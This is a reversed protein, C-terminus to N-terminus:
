GGNEVLGNVLRLRFAMRTRWTLYLLLIVLRKVLVRSHLPLNARLYHALRSVSLSVLLLRPFILLTEQSRSWVCPVLGIIKWSCARCVWLNWQRRKDRALNPKGGRSYTVAAAKCCNEPLFRSSTTRRRLLWGGYQFQLLLTRERTRDCGSCM